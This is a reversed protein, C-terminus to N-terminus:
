YGDGEHKRRAAKMQVAVDALVRGGTGEKNRIRLSNCIQDISINQGFHTM